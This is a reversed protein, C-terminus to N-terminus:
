RPQTVVDVLATEGRAVREVARGLAPGLDNPNEV